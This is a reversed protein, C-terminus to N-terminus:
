LYLKCFSLYNRVIEIFRSRDELMSMHGIDQLIQVDSTKNLSVQKISIEYDVARDETGIVYLVPQDFNRFMESRDERTRMAAMGSIFATESYKSGKRRLTEIVDPSENIMKQGFLMPYFDKLYGDLGYQGIHAERKARAKKNDETDGFPHTHIMGVGWLPDAYNAVFESATYGGMSHGFVAYKTVGESRMLQHYAEALDALKYTEVVASQGFGPLDPIVVQFGHFAELVEDWIQGDEGYGHILLVTADSKETLRYFLDFKGHQFRKEMLDMSSFYEKKLGKTVEKGDM